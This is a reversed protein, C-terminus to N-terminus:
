NVMFITSTTHLEYRQRRYCYRFPRLFLFKKIVDKTFFIGIPLSAVKIFRNRHTPDLDGSPNHNMVVLFSAPSSNHSLRPVSSSLISRFKWHSSLFEISIIFYFFFAFICLIQYYNIMIQDFILSTKMMENNVTRKVSCSRCCSVKVIEVERLRLM